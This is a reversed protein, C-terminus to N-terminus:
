QSVRVTATYVFDGLPSADGNAANGAAHFVVPGSRPWSLGNYVVISASDQASAVPNMLSHEQGPLALAGQAFAVRLGGSRTKM